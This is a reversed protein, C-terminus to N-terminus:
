RPRRPRCARGPPGRAPTRGAPRRSPPCGAAASQRDGVAGILTAGIQPGQQLVQEIQQVRYGPQFGNGAQAVALFQRFGLAGAARFQGIPQRHGREARAQCISSFPTPSTSVAGSRRAAASITSIRRQWTESMGVGPSRIRRSADPSAPRRGPATRTWHGPATGCDTAAPAATRATALPEGSTEVFWRRSAPGRSLEKRSTTARTASRRSAISCACRSCETCRTRKAGGTISNRGCGSAGRSRADRSRRAATRLSRCGSSWRATLRARRAWSRRVPCHRRCRAASRRPRDGEPARSGPRCKGARPDVRHMVLRRVSISQRAAIASIGSKAGGSASGERRRASPSRGIFFRAPRIFCAWCICDLICSICALSSAM